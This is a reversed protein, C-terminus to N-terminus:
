NTYCFSIFEFKKKKFLVIEGTTKSLKNKIWGKLTDLVNYRLDNM